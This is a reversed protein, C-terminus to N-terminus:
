ERLGECLILRCRKKRFGCRMLSLQLLTRLSIPYLRWRLVATLFGTLFNQRVQRRKEASESEWLLFPFIGSNVVERLGCNRAYLAIDTNVRPKYSFTRPGAWQRPEGTKRM